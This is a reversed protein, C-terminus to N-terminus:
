EESNDKMARQVAETAATLAALIVTEALGWEVTDLAGTLHALAAGAGVLAATRAIKKVDTLNLKGFVSTSKGFNGVVTDLITKWM